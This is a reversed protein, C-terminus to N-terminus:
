GFVGTSVIFIHPTTSKKIYGRKKPLLGSVIDQGESCLAAVRGFECQGEGHDAGLERSLIPQRGEELCIIIALVEHLHGSIFSAREAVSHGLQQGLNIRYTAQRQSQM